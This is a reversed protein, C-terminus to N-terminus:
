GNYSNKDTGHWQVQRIATMVWATIVGAQSHQLKLLLYCIVVLMQYTICLNLRYRQFSATLFIRQTIYQSLVKFLANSKRGQSHFYEIILTALYFSERKSELKVRFCLQM